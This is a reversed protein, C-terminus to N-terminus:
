QEAIVPINSYKTIRCLRVSNKSVKEAKKPWFIAFDGDGPGFDNLEHTATV